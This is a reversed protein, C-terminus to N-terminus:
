TVWMIRWDDNTQTAMRRGIQIWQQEEVSDERDTDRTTGEMSDNSAYM